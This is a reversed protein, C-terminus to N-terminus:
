IEESQIKTIAADIKNNDTEMSLGFQNYIRNMLVGIILPTPFSVLLTIIILKTGLLPVGWAVARILGLTGWSSLFTSIIGISCQKKIMIGILPYIVAPGAPTIMGGFLALLYGKIGAEKGLWENIMDEPVLTMVLGSFIFALLMTPIINIGMNIGENIGNIVSNQNTYTIAIITTIILLILVPLANKLSHIIYTM